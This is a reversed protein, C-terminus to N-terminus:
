SKLFPTDSKRTITQVYHVSNPVVRGAVKKTIKTTRVTEALKHMTKSHEHTKTAHSSLEVGYGELESALEDWFKRDGDHEDDPLSPHRDLASGLAKELIMHNHRDVTGTNTKSRYRQLPNPHM